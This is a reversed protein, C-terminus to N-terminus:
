SESFVVCEDFIESESILGVDIFGDATLYVVNKDHEKITNLIDIVEKVTM